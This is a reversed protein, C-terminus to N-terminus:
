MYISRWAISEAMWKEAAYFPMKWAVCPYLSLSRSPSLLLSLSLFINLHMRILYGVFDVKHWRRARYQPQAGAYAVAVVAIVSERYIPLSGVDIRYARVCFAAAICHRCFSIWCDCHNFLMTQQHTLWGVFIIKLIWHNKKTSIMFIKIGIEPHNRRNKKKWWLWESLSELEKMGVSYGISTYFVPVICSVGFDSWFPFFPSLSLSFYAYPNFLQNSYFLHLRM